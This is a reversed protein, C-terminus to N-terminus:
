KSDSVLFKRLVNGFIRSSILSRYKLFISKIQKFDSNLMIDMFNPLLVSYLNRNYRNMELSIYNKLKLEQEETLYNYIIRPERNIGYKGILLGDKKLRQTIPTGSFPALFGWQVYTPKTKKIFDISEKATDFDEGPFMFLIDAFAKIGYKKITRIASINQHVTTKKNMLKLM